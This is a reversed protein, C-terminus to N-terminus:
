EYNNSETRKYISRTSSFSGSFVDQLFDNIHSACLAPQEMMPVHGCQDIFRLRSVPLGQHFRWAVDPPTIRDEKGWLLLVPQLIRPLMAHVGHERSSRALLVINKLSDRNALQSTIEDIMGDNVHQGFFVEEAKKRIYERDFRRPVSGGFGQEYLGSSGILVLGSVAEPFTNAVHVAVQGGLSNGGIVAKKIGKVAMWELLWESLAPVTVNRNQYLPMRPAWVNLEPMIKGMVPEFNSLGGFLGHLLILDPYQNSQGQRNLLEANLVSGSVTERINM